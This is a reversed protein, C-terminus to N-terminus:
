SMIAIVRCRNMQTPRSINHNNSQHYGKHIKKNPLLVFSFFDLAPAVPPFTRQKELGILTLEYFEHRLGAEEVACGRGTEQGIGEGEAGPKQASAVGRRGDAGTDFGAIGGGCDANQKKDARRLHPEAGRGRTHLGGRRLQRGRRGESAAGAREV